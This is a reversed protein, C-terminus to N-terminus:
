SVSRGGKKEVLIAVQVQGVRRGIRVNSRMSARFTFISPMLGMGDRLPKVLVGAAGLVVTRATFEVMTTMM